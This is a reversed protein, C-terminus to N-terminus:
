GGVETWEQNGVWRITKGVEGTVTVAVFNNAADATDISVAVAYGAAATENWKNVVPAGVIRANGTADRHVLGEWTFGAAEGQVDTRRAVVSIKLNFARSAPITLVNIDAGTLIVAASNFANMVTATADTTIRKLPMTGVQADGNATLNGGARAYQFARSAVSRQGEAHSSAGSALTEYGIATSYNAQATSLNGLALSGYGPAKCQNGAAVSVGGTAECLYGLAVAYDLTARNSAGLAVTGQGTAECARGGAFSAEGSAVSQNGFAASYLGRVANNSSSLLRGARFAGKAKDFFARDAKAGGTDATDHDMRDSGVVWSDANDVPVIADGTGNFQWQAPPPTPAAQKVSILGKDLYRQIVRSPLAEIAVPVDVGGVADYGLIKGTRAWVYDSM